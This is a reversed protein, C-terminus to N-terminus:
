FIGHLQPLWGECVGESSSTASFVWLLCVNVFKFVVFSVFASFSILVEINSSLKVIYFVGEYVVINMKWWDSAEFYHLIRAQDINFTTVVMFFAFCLEDGALLL